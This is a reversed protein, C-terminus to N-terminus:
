TAVSRLAEVIAAQEQMSLAPEFSRYYCGCDNMGTREACVELDGREIKRALDAFSSVPFNGRNM